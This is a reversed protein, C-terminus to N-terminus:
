AHVNHIDKLGIGILYIESSENRSSKPKFYTTTCFYYQMSRRFEQEYEGQLIKTVFSGGPKLTHVALFCACWFAVKM